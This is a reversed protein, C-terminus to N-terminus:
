NQLVYKRIIKFIESIDTFCYDNDLKIDLFAVTFGYESCYKEKVTKGNVKTLYIWPINGVLEITIGIKNLRNVFIDIKNNM